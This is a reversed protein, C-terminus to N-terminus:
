DDRMVHIRAPDLHASVAAGAQLDRAAAERAPVRFRLEGGEFVFTLSTLDGLAQSQSLTGKVANSTKADGELSICDPPLLVTVPDGSRAGNVSAVAIDHPGIRIHAADRVIGAFLNQQGMLRAVLANQPRLRVEDPSGIQLTKGAHLVCIRDALALAEELDHTVLLIPIELSRHLAGLEEKLPERTMRDVASFPEDLLLVKPDRALARALAVRQRQGGSLQDPRRAELGQLHVRALLETARRRREPESLRLM